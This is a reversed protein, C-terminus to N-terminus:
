IEHNTGQWMITVQNYYCKCILSVQVNNVPQEINAQVSQLNTTAPTM